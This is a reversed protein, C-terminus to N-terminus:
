SFMGRALVEAYVPAMNKQYDAALQAQIAPTIGMDDAM